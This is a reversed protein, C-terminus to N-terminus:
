ERPGDSKDVRGLAIRGSVKAVNAAMVQSIREGTAQHAIYAVELVTKAALRAVRRGYDNFGEQTVYEAAAQDGYQQLHMGTMLATTSMLDLIHDLVGGHPDEGADFVNMVTAYQPEFGAQALKDLDGFTLPLEPLVLDGSMRKWEPVYLQGNDYYLLGQRYESILSKIADGLQGAANASVAAACWMQDGAEEILHAKAAEILKPASAERLDDYAGDLERHEETAKGRLREAAAYTGHPRKWGHLVWLSYEDITAAAPDACLKEALEKETEPDFDAPYYLGGHLVVPTPEGATYVTEASPVIRGPRPEFSM